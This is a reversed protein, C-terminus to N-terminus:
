EIKNIVKEYIGTPVKLEYLNLADRIKPLAVTRLCAKIRRLLKMM